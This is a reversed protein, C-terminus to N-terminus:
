EDSYAERHKHAAYERAVMLGVTAAGLAPYLVRNRFEPTWNPYKNKFVKQLGKDVAMGTVHGAAYGAAYGLGAKLRKKWKSKPQEQAIKEIEDFLAVRGVLGSSSSTRTTPM